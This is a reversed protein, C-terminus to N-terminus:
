DDEFLMRAVLDFDSLPEEEEIQIDDQPRIM